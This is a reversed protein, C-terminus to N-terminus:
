KILKSRDYVKIKYRKDDHRCDLSFKPLFAGQYQLVADITQGVRLWAQACLEVLEKDFDQLRWEREVCPQSDEDPTVIGLFDFNKTSIIYRKLASDSDEFPDIKTSMGIRFKHGQIIGIRGWSQPLLMNQHVVFDRHKSFAKILPDSGLSKRQEKFWQPFGPENQLAMSVLDPVEKLAKLFVNLHWRFLNASHYHYEMMHIWFHAEQFRDLAAEIKKLHCIESNDM